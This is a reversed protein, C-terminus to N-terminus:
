NQRINDLMVEKAMKMPISIYKKEMYLLIRELLEKSEDNLNELDKAFVSGIATNRIEKILYPIENMAQEVMREQYLRSLEKMSSSVIAECAELAQQRYALNQQALAQIDEMGIYRCQNSFKVEDATDAPLALDILLLKQNPKIWNELHSKQIIASESSTCTVICDFAHQNGIESLAISTGNVMKAVELAREITRNAVVVEAYGNESLFKAFNRIVQGAGILLIRNEPAIGYERFCQWALSVVSVPKRSLETHTFIDKSTRICQNIALRIIDGTLGWQMCEEYSKRLQTVIEREGIVVSDLSCAVRLLHEASEAGNMKLCRKSVEDLTAADLAPFLHGLIAKTQGGCLFHPLTFILEVRNCTSLYMLENLGFQNKLSRLLMERQDPDIHFKGITSLPFEQHTIAISRLENV